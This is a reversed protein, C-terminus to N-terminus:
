QILYFNYSVVTQTYAGAYVLSFILISNNMRFNVDGLQFM